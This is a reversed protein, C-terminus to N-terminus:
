LASKRREERNQTIKEIIQLEVAVTLKTPPRRRPTNAVNTIDVLLIGRTNSNRTRKARKKVRQRIKRITVTKLNYSPWQLVEEASSRSSNVIAQRVGDPIEKKDTKLPKLHRGKTNRPKKPM